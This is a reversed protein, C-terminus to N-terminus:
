CLRMGPKLNSQKFRQQDNFFTPICLPIRKGLATANCRYRLTHTRDELLINQFSIHSVTSICVFRDRFGSKNPWNSSINPSSTEVRFQEQPEKVALRGGRKPLKASIRSYDHDWEEPNLGNKLIYDWIDKALDLLNKNGTGWMKLLYMLATTNDIQFHVAKMKM